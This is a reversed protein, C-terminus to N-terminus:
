FKQIDHIETIYTYTKNEGESLHKRKWRRFGCYWALAGIVAFVVYLVFTYSLASQMQPAHEDALSPVHM